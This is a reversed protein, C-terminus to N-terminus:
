GCGRDCKEATVEIRGEDDKHITIRYEPMLDLAGDEVPEFLPSIALYEIRGTYINHDARLVVFNRMIEFMEDIKNDMLYEYSVYFRGIRATTNQDDM